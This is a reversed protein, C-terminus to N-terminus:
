NVYFAPRILNAYIEGSRKFTMQTCTSFCRNLLKIIEKEWAKNWTRFEAGLMQTYPAVDADPNRCVEERFKSLIAECNKIRKHLILALAM